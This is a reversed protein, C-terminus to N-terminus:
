IGSSPDNVLRLFHSEDVNLNRSKMKKKMAPIIRFPLGKSIAIKIGTECRDTLSKEHLIERKLRASGYNRYPPLSMYFIIQRTRTRRKSKNRTNIVPGSHVETNIMKKEATDIWIYVTSIRIKWKRKQAIMQRIPWKKFPPGDKGIVKAYYKEAKSKM